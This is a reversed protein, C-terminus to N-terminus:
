CYRAFSVAISPFVDAMLRTGDPARLDRLASVVRDESIRSSALAEQDVFLGGLASAEIVPGTRREVERELEEVPVSGAASGGTGTSTVVVAASGGSARNAAEVLEGLVRDLVSVPGQLTVALLDPIADTGYGSRLIRVAEAGARDPRSAMAVDDTDGEIYWNGGIIGRDSPDAAVLGIRPEQRLLEDLDDGLAAIVSFPAGRGWARVVRGEDNRVLSGTIGHQQPLGGTGITTLVAAPDLPLSGVEAELTGVGEKM